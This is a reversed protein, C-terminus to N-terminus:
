KNFSIFFSPNPASTTDLPSNNAERLAPILLFLITKEPTPLVSSSISYAMLFFM